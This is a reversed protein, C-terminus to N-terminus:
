NKNRTSSTTALNSRLTNTKRGMHTQLPKFETIGQPAICLTRIIKTNNKDKKKVGPRRKLTQIMRKAVGISRHDDIPAFLIKISNSKSHTQFKKTRFTQAKDCKLKRSVDDNSLCREM